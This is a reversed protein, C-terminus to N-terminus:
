RTFRQRMIMKNRGIQSTEVERITKGTFHLFVDELTPKRLNVTKIEIEEERQGIKMLLPIKNEGRDVTLDIFNDHEKIKKVWPLKQLIEFARKQPSAEISIVDGGLINKLNQSIDLTVIKGFDIIAIRNCLYDAEEMYHTTLFITTKEKQNLKLIYDWINRRTQPDLGLTPEDLFLVKPFHMLGRAIELRRQMGGSYNIVLVNAKDQLEVLNLVEKIRKQRTEKDLDYLRAHFDLNERGTLRNDLAPEQFVIGISNRVEDRQTLIDFGWVKAQGSTPNLLTALMKILTTKGAGNPGLLGFIEGEEVKFSVNDVARLGNFEKTLNKTEIALM